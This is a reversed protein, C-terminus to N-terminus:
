HDQDDGFDTYKKSSNYSRNLPYKRRNIEIKEKVTNSIDIGCKESLYLLYIFIDALEEKIRRIGRDSLLIAKIEKDSKWLFLEQLEASEISLAISLNKPDHFRKWNREDRFTVVEKKLQEITTKSDM